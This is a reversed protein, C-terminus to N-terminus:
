GSNRSIVSNGLFSRYTSSDVFFVNAANNCMM